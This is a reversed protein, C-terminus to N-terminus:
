LNPLDTLEILTNNVLFATCDDIQEETTEYYNNGLLDLAEQVQSPTLALDSRNHLLNSIFAYAESLAHCKIAPDDMNNKASILYHVATGAVTLHWKTRIDDTHELVDTGNTIATRAAIFDDMIANTGLASNRGNCYKGHFRVDDTNAPFDIPIGFYGFAEDFKHEAETYFKGEVIDTNNYIGDETGDIYTAMAQYYFVDGMLGKEILQTPEFGNEDFLYAKSPDNISVVVGAQGNSGPTEDGSISAITNIWQEYFAVNPLFCKDKLQKGSVRAEESFHTSGAGDNNSFMELLKAADLQVGPTNGTKMYNTMEELQNLRATQGSYDVTQEGEREFCYTNETCGSPSVPNDVPQTEEEEKTCAVLIFAVMLPFLFEKM